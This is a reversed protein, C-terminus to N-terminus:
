LWSVISLIHRSGPGTKDCSILYPIMVWLHLYKLPLTMPLAPPMMRSKRLFKHFFHFFCFPSFLNSSYYYLLSKLPSQCVMLARYMGAAHSSCENMMICKTIKKWWHDFAIFLYFSTSYLLFDGVSCPEKQKEVKLYAKHNNSHEWSEPRQWAVKKKVVLKLKMATNSNNSICSPMLFSKLVTLKFQM